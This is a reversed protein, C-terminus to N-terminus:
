PEGSTVAAFVTITGTLVPEFLKRTSARLPAVPLRSQVCLVSIAPARVGAEEGTKPGGNGAALKEDRVNRSPHQHPLIGILGFARDRAEIKIACSNGSSGSPRRLLVHLDVSREGGVGVAVEIESEKDEAGRREVQL